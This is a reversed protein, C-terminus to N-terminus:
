KVCWRWAVNVQLHMHIDLHACDKHVPKDRNLLFVLELSFGQKQSYVENISVQLQLGRGAPVQLENSHRAQENRGFKLLYMRWLDFVQHMHGVFGVGSVVDHLHLHYHETCKIILYATWCWHM